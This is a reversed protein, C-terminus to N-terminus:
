QLVGAATRPGPVRGPAPVSPLVISARLGGGPRNGLELRGGMQRVLRSAVFLGLGSGTGSTSAAGRVGRLVVAPIEADAIGPGRDDVHLAIEGPRHETQVRVPGPAYSRANVLLNHVATALDGRAKRRDTVLLLALRERLAPRTM